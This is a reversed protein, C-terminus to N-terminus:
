TLACYITTEKRTGYSACNQGKLHFEDSSSVFFSALVSFDESRRRWFRTRSDCASAWIWCVYISGSRCWVYQVRWMHSYVIYIYTYIPPFSFRVGWIFTYYLIWSACMNSGLAIKYIAGKGAFHMNQATREHEHEHDIRKIILNVTCWWEGVYVRRDTYYRTYISYISQFSSYYMCIIYSWWPISKNLAYDDSTKGAKWLPFCLSLSFIYHKM